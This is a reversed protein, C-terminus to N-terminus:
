EGVAIHIVRGGRPRALGRFLLPGRIGTWGGESMILDFRVVVGESGKWKRMADIMADREPVTIACGRIPGAGRLPAGTADRPTYVDHVLQGTSAAGYLGAPLAAEATWGTPGLKWTDSMSAGNFGGWIRFETSSIAAAQHWYRGAPGAGVVILTWDTGDWRWLEDSYTAPATIGGFLYVYSGVTVMTHGYRGSPKHAPAKQTWDTGDWVWTSDFYVGAGSTGGFVVLTDGLQAMASHAAATPSHVPVIQTWEGDLWQWTDGYYAPVADQGNTMIVAGRFEAMVHGFRASPVPGAPTGLQWDDHSRDWLWTDALAVGANDSGGFMVLGEGFTTAVACKWRAAPVSSGVGRVVVTTAEVEAIGDWTGGVGPGARGCLHWCVPLTATTHSWYDLTVFDASWYTEWGPPAFGAVYDAQKITWVHGQEGAANHPWGGPWYKDEILGYPEVKLGAFGVSGAAATQLGVYFDTISGPGINSSAIFDFWQWSTSLTGEWVLEHWFYISPRAVGDSLAWGCVHWLTWNADLAYQRALNLAGPGSVRLYRTMGAPGGDRKELVTGAGSPTWFDLLPDQCSGDQLHCFPYRDLHTVTWGLTEFANLFGTDTGSWKWTEWAGWLRQAYDADAEDPVQPLMREWGIYSLADDPAELPLPCMAATQVSDVLDDSLGGIATVWRRGWVGLLWPPTYRTLIDTFSM